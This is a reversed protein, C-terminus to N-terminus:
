PNVARGSAGGTFLFMEATLARRDTTEAIEGQLIVLEGPQINAQVICAIYAARLNPLEQNTYTSALVQRTAASAYKKASRDYPLHSVSNGSCLGAYQGGRGKFGINNARGRVFITVTNGTALVSVVERNLEAFARAVEQHRTTDLRYSGLDFKPITERAPSFLRIAHYTGKKGVVLESENLLVASYLEGAYGKPQREPGRAEAAEVRKKTEAHLAKEAVLEADLEARRRNSDDRGRQAAELLTKTEAHLSKERALEAEARALRQEYQARDSRATKDADDLRGRSEAHRAKEAALGTDLEVLRRRHDDRDRQAAELLRKTEAHLSRESALEAEVRALGTDSPERDCGVLCIGVVVPWAWHGTSKFKALLGMLMAAVSVALWGYAITIDSTLSQMGRMNPM